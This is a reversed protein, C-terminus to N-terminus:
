KLAILSAFDFYQLRERFRSIMAASNDVAVIRCNPADIHQLMSFTVAGLSCGLDYCVSDPCAFRGALLGIAAIIALYGPVFRQIMDPFVDAVKADFQFAEIEALPSAYVSDKTHTM